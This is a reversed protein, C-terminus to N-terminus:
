AEQAGDDPRSPFTIVVAAHAAHGRPSAAGPRAGPKEQCDRDVIHIKVSLTFAAKIRTATRPGIGSVDAIEEVPARYLNRLDGRFRAMLNEATEIQRAGGIVAALLELSTCSAPNSAVRYAPQERLSLQQLKTTPKYEHSGFLSLMTSNM